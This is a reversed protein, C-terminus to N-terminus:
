NIEVSLQFTLKGNRHCNEIFICSYVTSTALGRCLPQAVEINKVTSFDFMNPARM